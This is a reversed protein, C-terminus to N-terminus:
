ATQTKLKENYPKAYQEFFEKQQAKNKCLKLGVDILAREITQYGEIQHEHFLGVACHVVKYGSYHRYFSDTLDIRFESWMGGWNGIWVVIHKGKEGAEFQEDPNGKDLIEKIKQLAEKRSKTVDKKDATIRRM